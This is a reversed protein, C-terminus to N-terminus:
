AIDHCHISANYIASETLTNEVNHMDLIDEVSVVNNSVAFCFNMRSKIASVLNQVEKPHFM